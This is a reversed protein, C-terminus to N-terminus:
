LRRGIVRSIDCDRSAQELDDLGSEYIKVSTLTMGSNREMQDAIGIKYAASRNNEIASIAYDIELREIADTKGMLSGHWDNNNMNVGCIRNKKGLTSTLNM